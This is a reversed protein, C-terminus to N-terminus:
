PTRVKRLTVDKWPLWRLGDKTREWTGNLTEGDNSFAGTLRETEASIRLERGKLEYTSTRTRGESDYGTVRYRDGVTDQGIIELAKGAYPTRSDVHHLLFFGGEMWEYRDTADIRESPADATARTAGTTKWTGVFPSLGQPRIAPKTERERNQNGQSVCAALAALAALTAIAKQANSLM